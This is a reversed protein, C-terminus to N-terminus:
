LPSSPATTISSPATLRAQLLRDHAVVAPPFFQEVFDVVHEPWAILELPRGVREHADLFPHLLGLVAGLPSRAMSSFGPEASALRLALLGVTLGVLLTAGRGLMEVLRTLTM